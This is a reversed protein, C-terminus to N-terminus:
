KGKGRLFEVFSLVNAATGLPIGSENLQDVTLKVINTGKIKEKEFIPAIIKLDDDDLDLQQKKSVLFAVLEATNLKKIDDVSQVDHSFLQQETSM